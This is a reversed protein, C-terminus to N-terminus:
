YEWPPLGVQTRRDALVLLAEITQLGIRACTRTVAPCRAM